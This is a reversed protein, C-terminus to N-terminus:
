LTSVYRIKNSETPGGPARGAFVLFRFSAVGGDGAMARWREKNTAFTCGYVAGKPRISLRRDRNQTGREVGWSWRQLKDRTSWRYTTVLNLPAAMQCGVLMAGLM